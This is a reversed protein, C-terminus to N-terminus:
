EDGNPTSREIRWSEAEEDYVVKVKEWTKGGDFSEAYNKEDDYTWGLPVIKAIGHEGEFYSPSMFYTAGDYWGYKPANEKILREWTKGGDNTVMLKRISDYDLYTTGDNYRDSCIGYCIYGIGDPSIHAGAVFHGGIADAGRSDWHEWTEWNDDTRLIWTHAYQGFPSDDWGLWGNKERYRGRGDDPALEYEMEETFREYGELDSEGWSLYVVMWDGGFIVSWHADASQDYGPIVIEENPDGLCYHNGISIDLSDALKTGPPFIDYWIDPNPFKFITEWRESDECINYEYKKIFVEGNKRILSSIADHENLSLYELKEGRLLKRMQDYYRDYGNDYLADIGTPKPTPPEFSADPAVAPTEPVRSLGAYKDEQPAQNQPAKGQQTQSQGCASFVCLASLVMATLMFWATLKKAKTSSNM